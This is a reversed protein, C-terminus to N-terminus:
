VETDYILIRFLDKEKDQNSKPSCDLSRWCNLYFDIAERIQEPTLEPKSPEQKTEEAEKKAKRRPKKSHKKSKSAMESMEKLLEKFVTQEIKSFSHLEDEELWRKMFMQYTKTAEIAFFEQLYYALAVRKGMFQEMIRYAKVCEKDQWELGYKEICETVKKDAQKVIEFTRELRSKRRKSTKVM